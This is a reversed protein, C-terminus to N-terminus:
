LVVCTLEDDLYIELTDMGKLPRSALYFSLVYFAGKVVHFTQAIKTDQELALYFDGQPAALGGFAANKTYVVVHKSDKGADRWIGLNGPAV